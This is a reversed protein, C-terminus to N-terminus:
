APLGILLLQLELDGTVEAEEGPNLYLGDREAVRLGGVTGAGRLAFALTRQGAVLQHRGGDAVAVMSLATGQAAVRVLGKIRVGPAETEWPFADPLLEIPVTFRTPPRGTDQEPPVSGEEFPQDSGPAFQVALLEVGAPRVYPGYYTHAPVYLLGGEETARDPEWPSSGVLTYRIQDVIHRHRKYDKHQPYRSVVMEFYGPMGPEGRQLVKVETAPRPRSSAGDPAGVSDAKGRRSWEVEAYRTVRMHM